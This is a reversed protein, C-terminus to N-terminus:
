MVAVPHVTASWVPVVPVRVRLAAADACLRALFVAASAAGVAARLRALFAVDAVVDSGLGSGITRCAACGAFVAAGVRVAVGVCVAVGVGVAAGV